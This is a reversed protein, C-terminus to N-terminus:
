PITKTIMEGSTPYIFYINATKIFPYYQIELVFSVPAQNSKVSNFINSVYGEFSSFIHLLDQCIKIELKQAEEIKKSIFITLEKLISSSIDSKSGLTSIISLKQLPKM